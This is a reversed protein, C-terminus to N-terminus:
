SLGPVSLRLYAMMQLSAISGSPVLTSWRLSWAHQCRPSPFRTRFVTPGNKPPECTGNSKLCTNTMPCPIWHLQWTPL